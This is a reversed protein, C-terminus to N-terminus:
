SCSFNAADGTSGSGKYRATKPWPCLLRSSEAHGLLSRGKSRAVATEPAQDHEVWAELQPVMDIGEGCHQLGPVMFLRASDGVKPGLVSRAKEYYRVSNLASILSDSWGHYMILRGGRRVFSGIDPDSADLVQGARRSHAYDRDLDFGAATWAPDGYVLWRYYELGGVSNMFGALVWGAGEGGVAPGPILLEGSKLRPGDYVKRLAAVEAKTLCAATDFLKCQLVAPDFQCQMPNELVGDQVGDLGDCAQLIAKNVMPLKAHLNPAAAIARENWVLQTMIEGFNIAPSGAIVGDYDDPFRSVEMMAERGGDSCGQFYAHRAPAGYYASIVQKATMALAHNARYAFDVVKEPQQHAWRATAAVPHGLDSTATAYGRSAVTNMLGESQGLGGSFGGGGHTFLKGNWTDPLWLEVNIDSAPTPQLRLRVRCLDTSASDSMLGGLAQGKAVRQASTITGPAFRTGVLTACAGASPPPNQALVAGTWGGFLVLCGLMSLMRLAVANKTPRRRTAGNAM